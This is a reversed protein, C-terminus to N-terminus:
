FTLRLILIKWFFNVTFSAILAACVEGFAINISQREFSSKEVSMNGSSDIDREVLHGFVTDGSADRILLLSQIDDSAIVILRLLSDTNQLLHSILVGEKTSIHFLM